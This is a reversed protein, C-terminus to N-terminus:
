TSRRENFIKVIPLFFQKLKHELFIKPHKRHLRRLIIELYLIRVPVNPHNRLREKYRAYMNSVEEEVSKIKLDKRIQENRVYWPANVITRLIVSRMAELEAIYSKAATEACKVCAPTENCYNKTHGHSQCHLCRPIDRKTKSAEFSVITNLLQLNIRKLEDIITGTDTRSHMGRLVVKYSRDKKPQYTYFNTNKQKLAKIVKRYTNVQVKVHNNKLQQLTYEEKAIEKLLNILPAIVQTEIHIPPTEANKNIFLKLNDDQAMLLEFKGYRCTQKDSAIVHQCIIRLSGYLFINIPKRLSIIAPLLCQIYDALSRHEVNSLLDLM